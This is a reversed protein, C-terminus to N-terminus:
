QTLTQDLAVRGRRVWRYVTSERVEVAAAVEAVRTGARIQDVVEGQVATCVFPARGEERLYAVLRVLRAELIETSRASRHGIFDGITKLDFDADVLRQVASHRMTHSGPHPVDIGGQAPLSRGTGVGRSVQDPLRAGAGPLVRSSGDDPPPGGPPLGGPSCRSSRQGGAGDHGDWHFAFVWCKGVM